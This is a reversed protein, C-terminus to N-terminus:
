ETGKELAALFVETITERVGERGKLPFILTVHCGNTTTMERTMQVAHLTRNANDFNDLNVPNGGDVMNDRIDNFTFPFLANQRNMRESNGPIFDITDGLHYSHIKGSKKGWEFM